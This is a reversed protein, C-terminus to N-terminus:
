RFEVRYLGVGGAGAEAGDTFTRVAIGLGALGDALGGEDFLVAEVDPTDSVCIVVIDAASAVATAPARSAHPTSRIASATSTSSSTSSAGPM